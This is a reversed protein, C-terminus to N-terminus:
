QLLEVHGVGDHARMHKDMVTSVKTSPVDRDFWVSHGPRRSRPVGFVWTFLGTVVQEAGAPSTLVLELAVGMSLLHPAGHEDTVRFKPQAAVKITRVVAGPMQRDIVWTVGHRVAKSPTGPLWSLWLGPNEINELLTFDDQASVERLRRNAEAAVEGSGTRAAVKWWQEAEVQKGLRALLVGLHYAAGTHGLEAAVRWWRETEADDGADAKLQGLHAAARADGKEAARAWWEEAESPRGQQDLLLAMNKAADPLHEGAPRWWREARAPEGRRLWVMGMGLVAAWDGAEVGRRFWAEAQTLEERELAIVGLNNFAHWVGRDAAMRYWRQAGAPDAGHLRLALAYAARANGAEAAARYGRQAEALRGQDADRDARERVAVTGRPEPEPTPRYPAVHFPFESDGTAHVAVLFGNNEAEGGWHGHPPGVISTPATGGSAYRAMATWATVTLPCTLTTRVGDVEIEAVLRWVLHNPNGTVPAFMVDVAQGAPVTMPFGLGDEVARVTAPDGDLLVEFHPAPLPLYADVSREFSEILDPSIVADPMRAHAMFASDPVLPAQGVVEARVARIILAQSENARVTFSLNHGTLPVHVPEPGVGSGPSMTLTVHSRTHVEVGFTADAPLGWVPVPRAPNTMAFFSFRRRAIAAPGGRDRRWSHVGAAAAVLVIVAWPGWGTAGTALLVAGGAFLPLASAVAATATRSM